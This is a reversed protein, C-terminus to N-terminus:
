GRTAEELGAPADIVIRRGEIDIERLLDRAMPILCRESGRAVELLDQPGSVVAVVEGLENGSVDEIRCGVLDHIYYNDQELRPLESTEIAVETGRLAEAADRDGIGDFAIVWRGKNDIFLRRVRRWAGGLWAASDIAPAATRGAPEIVVEGALGHPRVVRGIIAPDSPAGRVSAGPM